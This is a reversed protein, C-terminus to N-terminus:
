QLERVVLDFATVQEIPRTTTLLLHIREHSFTNLRIKGKELLKCEVTEPSICQVENLAIAPEVTAEYGRPHVSVAIPGNGELHPTFIIRIQSADVPIVRPNQVPIRPATKKRHGKLEDVEGEVHGNHAFGGSSDSREPIQGYGLEDDSAQGPFQTDQPRSQIRTVSLYHESLEHLEKGEGEPLFRALESLNESVEEFIAEMESDILARLQKRVNRFVTKAQQQQEPEPLQNPQISDHAPSEMSRIWKDGEDTQPTVVATYDTWTVRGRPAVPNIRQDSSATILMGKRNVYATRSPGSSPDLFVDLKGLPQVSRTAHDAKDRRITRYFYYFSQSSESAALIEDITEHDVISPKGSAPKITVRLCQSHIAMFFNECIARQVDAVWDQSHPDFGLIFIGTGTTEHLRFESPIEKRGVLPAMNESRYFGTNQLYDNPAPEVNKQNLNPHAHTMLRSKGQCKEVRGRKRDLYRTSYFVTFIDSITFVANKGIGFSGGSLGGEKQVIGESEVLARWNQHRLGYTGSDVIKLCRIDPRKLSELGRRLAEIDRQSNTAGIRNVEEMCASFHAALQDGGFATKPITCDSLEVGVVPFGPNHSDLSNQIVERTVHRLRDAQFYTTAADTLGYSMGGNNPPFDWAGKASNM